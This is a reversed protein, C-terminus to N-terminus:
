QRRRWSSAATGASGARRRGTTSRESARDPHAKDCHNCVVMVKGIAMPQALDLIGGRPSREADPREHELEPRPKTHRKAINV